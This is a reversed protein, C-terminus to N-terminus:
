EIIVVDPLQIVSYRKNDFVITHGRSKDYQIIDNLEIGEVKDGVSIVKAKIYRNETDLKETIELGAIKKPKNKINEVIIYYSVAKM